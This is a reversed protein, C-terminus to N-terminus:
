NKQKKLNVYAVKKSTDKEIEKLIELIAERKSM